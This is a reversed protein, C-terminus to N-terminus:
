CYASHELTLAQLREDFWRSFLYFLQLCTNQATKIKVDLFMVSCALLLGARARCNLYNRSETPALYGGYFAFVWVGAMGRLYSLWKYRPLITFRGLRRRLINTHYANLIPHLSLYFQM